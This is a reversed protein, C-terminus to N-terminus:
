PRILQYFAGLIAGCVIHSVLTMIPTRRSYNLVAEDKWRKSLAAGLM